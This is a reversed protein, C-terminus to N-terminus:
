AFTKMEALIKEAFELDEPLDIDLWFLGSVDCTRLKVGESIMRKICESLTATASAEERVKEIAKFIREDLVFVGTDIANWKTLVKGIDQVCCEDNVLVKTADKLQPPYKPSYDVCILPKNEICGLAKGVIEPDVIHDAMLVLFPENRELFNKAYYLSVANGDDYQPNYAYEIEIEYKEGSGLYERIKEAKYGVIVICKKVGNEKLAMLPYEILPKGFIPILPKPKENMCTSIRKGRGAALIVARIM